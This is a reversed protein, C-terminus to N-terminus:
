GGLPGALPAARLADSMGLIRGSVRQLDAELGDSRGSGLASGRLVDDQFGAESLVRKVNGYLSMLQTKRESPLNSESLASEYEDLVRKLRDGAQTPVEDHSLKGHMQTLCDAITELFDALKTMEVRLESGREYKASLFAGVLASFAGIVAEEM